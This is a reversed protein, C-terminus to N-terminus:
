HDNELKELRHNLEQWSIHPSFTASITVRTNSTNTMDLSHPIDTRVFASPMDLLHSYVLDGVDVVTYGMPTKPDSQRRNSTDLVHHMKTSGIKSNYWNLTAPEGQVYYALRWTYSNEPDGDLHPLCHTGPKGTFVNISSVKLNLKRGLRIMDKVFKTRTVSQDKITHYTLRESDPHVVLNTFVAIDADSVPYLQNTRIYQNM